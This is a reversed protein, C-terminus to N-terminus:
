MSDSNQKRRNNSQQDAAEVICFDVVYIFTSTWFLM